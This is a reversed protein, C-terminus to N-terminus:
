WDADTFSIAIFKNTLPLLVCKSEVDNLKSFHYTKGLNSIKVIGLLKSELPREFANESRGFVQYVQFINGEHLVINTILCIKGDIRVCGDKSNMKFVHRETEVKQYQCGNVLREHVPGNSHPKSLHPYTKPDKQSETQESLRRIIQALPFTPKRVMKKLKSLFNEFPFASINDLSGFKKAENALHVLCHVNYVAMDDGYVQYFHIVFTQLLDHAYQNYENALRENLLIHIGVSLLLFNQYINPHVADDLAVLGTYLLFQRFETAKWRDIEALSRPKRALESPINQKLAM